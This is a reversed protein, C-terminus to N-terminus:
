KNVHDKVIIELTTRDGEENLVSLWYLGPSFSYVDISIKDEPLVALPQSVMLQGLANYLELRIATETFESFDVWLQQRVPNPFVKLRSESHIQQGANESEGGNNRFGGPESSQLVITYDEVEGNVFLECPNSYAARQMAVRMMCTGTPIGFPVEITAEVPPVATGDIGALSIAAVVEEGADTFDFDQNFDIWVRIYEDFHTYSLTPLISIPYSNGETITTSLHTFDGHGEKASTNNIAGFTVNSIYEHWPTSGESECYNSSPNDPLVTVTFSCSEVNGCADSAEYAIAHSGIPFFSGSPGGQLQQVNVVGQCNISTATATPWSVNAGGMGGAETVIRNDPCNIFLSQANPEVTITFSCSQVDGCIDTAEYTVTYVGAALQSGNAPGSTQSIQLNGGGVCDMEMVYFREKESGYLKWEANWPKLYGFDNSATNVGPDNVLANFNVPEGNVWEFVGETNSDHLGIFVKSSLHDALFNNEAVTNVTTLYAGFTECHDKAAEWTSESNSLFYEHENLTGLLAFGDIASGCNPNQAGGGCTTNVTPAPWSVEMTSRRLPLTTTINSPCNLSITGTGDLIRILFSCSATTGCADAVEYAITYEGLPFLSGPPSGQTQTISTIGGLSCDSTVSPIEWNVVEGQGTASSVIIDNECQLSITSPRDVVTVDFSCSVTNGCADVAEYSVPTIGVSFISGSAPGATQTIAAGGAPCDTLASPASWSAIASTAGPAANVFVPAPCQLTLTTPTAVVTIDFSCDEQNGCVDSITYAITTVGEQLISGSMPGSTQVITVDDEPCSSNVTPASWSVVIETEGPATNETFSAICDVSLLGPDEYLVIEFSCNISNGCDDSAEYTVLTTGLPFLAGNPLGATQTLNVTGTQCGSRPQVLTWSVAQGTSGPVVALEINAPCNFLLGAGNVEGPTAEFGIWNEPLSNDLSPEILQLTPGEGDPEEPWPLKNDYEVLDILEGTANKLSILEGKGSLNFGDSGKGFSGIVNPVNPYIARFATEDAALILFGGIGIVTGSPFGFFEGSEDEFYWGSLDVPSHTPNYLEVWDGPDPTDPSNYNIENIVIPDTATSGQIFHATLSESGSNIDVLIESDSSNSAGTWGTFLYGRNPKAVAPVEVGRFYIGSFPLLSEGLRLTSFKITGGDVPEADVTVNSTGTVDSFNDKVHQRVENTRGSAFTRLVDVNEAHGNWGSQWMDFHQQLEPIYLNEFSDIRNIMRDSDFVTNLLDASRNIFYTRAEDNEMLRRLFLTAHPRNYYKRSNEALCVDIMDTTYDGSNWSANLPRLGFGFDFDKSLWRWKGDPSRERWHRNNNAPWDNNDMIIGHLMYDIFHDVDAKQRLAQYDAADYFHNDELYDNFTEWEILDGTKLEDRDEVVDVEDEGLGYHADLYKWSVQERVNQIGWYEGNIYLIAPRFAMLDLDPRKIIGGLDSVDGMLNQMLADRFMTKNWDQGSQRMVFSRYKDIDQEPFIPHEFFASGLSGKAKMKMSKQPLSLSGKGHLEIEIDQSFALTGDPEFFQIHALKELEEEYNTFLGDSSNYLNDPDTAMTVVVFDHSVDVLYTHTMVKSPDMGSAYAIARIVTTEDIDIAGNYEDDDDDPDSGDLTYYIVAGPTASTLTLEISGSYFGGELNAVPKEAIGTGPDTDNASGPTPDSYFVWDSGGDPDRGESIDALQPGFTYADIQTSGDTDFLGISEGSAGLKADVHLISQSLDKDFFLLLFGNAPITTATPDSDPIQWLTPNSLDDTIYMGGIDVPSSGSNFLEVWDENEGAEDTIGNVNSALFENIYISPTQTNATIWCASFLILCKLTKM